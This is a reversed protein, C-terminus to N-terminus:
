KGNVHDYKKKAIESARMFEAIPMTHVDITRGNLMSSIFLAQDYVVNIDDNDKNPEKLKITESYKKLRDVNKDFDFSMGLPKLLAEIKKKQEETAFVSQQALKTLAEMYGLWNLRTAADIMLPDAKVSDGLAEKIKEFRRKRFYNVGVYKLLSFGLYSLDGKECMYYNFTPIKHISKYM